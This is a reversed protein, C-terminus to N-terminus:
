WKQFLVPDLATLASSFAAATSEANDDSVVVFSKSANPRLYEKYKPFANVIVDLADHSDVYQQVHFYNPLKTDDPCQGSGLPPGICVTQTLTGGVVGGGAPRRGGAGAAGAMGAAGGAGGMGAAGGVGGGVVADRPGAILIVRVDIGSNLIMQSFENMYSQVFEIEATMSTSTDIAFIIDAPQVSTVDKSSTQSSACEQTVEKPPSTSGGDSSGTGTSPTNGSGAVPLTPRGGSAVLAGAISTGNAGGSATGGAPANTSGASDIQTGSASPAKSSCAFAAVLSITATARGIRSTPVFRRARDLVLSSGRSFHTM